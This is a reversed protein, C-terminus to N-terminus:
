GRMIREYRARLAERPPGAEVVDWPFFADPEKERFVVEEATPAGAGQWAIVRPGRASRLPAELRRDSLGLYAEAAAARPAEPAARVEPVTRLRRGIEEQRAALEALSAMPAWQLPTFPKPVFPTLVATVRKPRGRGRRAARLVQAFRALFASTGEVEEVRAACPLGVLFYLKFSAVGAEALLRAAEFFAADPIAKGVRARLAEDGCEPALTVTRVGSRGLLEAVEADVLDARVSAPSVAGGRALIERAFERFHRWDLIAAGVLGVTRRHPWAAQAAARAHRLPVERFRPCAHAAACFACARPCGRSTEVLAM